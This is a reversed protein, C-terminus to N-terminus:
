NDIIPEILEIQNIYEEEIEQVNVIRDIVMKNINMIQRSTYVGLVLMVASIVIAEISIYGKKNRM